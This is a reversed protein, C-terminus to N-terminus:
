APRDLQATPTLRRHRRRPRSRPHRSAPHPAPHRPLPHRRARVDVRIDGHHKNVVIRWSIDLGSGPARASRSPPSSRSSSGAGPHGDPHGTGTDGIEVVACDDTGPRHPRDAHRQRGDRRGRQRDPQDVGPQARGRVGPHPPLARDYEKVVTLGHRAEPRADVLTSDLLEHVDVVQFPARDMQSYQKAAGVLTSIRTTADEIENMLLETEVTYSLWRIAGELRASRAAGSRRDLWEVDLGAQSSADARAGLRRRHRPGGALRRARGRPRHGGDPDADAGQGGARGGGGAAPGAVRLTERTSRAAPSAHGAQAADRRGARAAGVTARVAAAAPNNLEHTLGASLSGLALLRERQGISRRQTNQMGFFLGELLHVAMPFWDRMIEASTRPPWCSSGRRRRHGCARGDRLSRRDGPRRPLGAHRRLVVGRQDTRTIEVDDGGVGAPCRWRHRRAARLLLDGARGRHVGPGARVDRGPRARM